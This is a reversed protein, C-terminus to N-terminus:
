TSEEVTLHGHYRAVLGVWPLWAQVEFQLQNGGGSERAIVVPRLWAPCPIGFFHMRQLRMELHEGDVCLLFALRAAGLQEVVHGAQWRMQSTMSQAPFHRTWTEVDSRADLEFRIAGSSAVQPTGTCWALGKALWSAPAATEVWGHLTHRGTLRHFRQVAAPLRDFAAGMAQQVLSLDHNKYM